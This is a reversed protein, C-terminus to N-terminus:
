RSIYLKYVYPNPQYLVPESAETAMTGLGTTPSHAFEAPVATKTTMVTPQLIVTASEGDAPLVKLIRVAVVGECQLTTWGPVTMPAASNYLLCLRQQGIQSELALQVPTTVNGLATMEFPSQAPLRNNLLRLDDQTLGQRIQRNINDEHLDNNFDLLQVNSLLPDQKLPSSQLVVEPIGDPQEVVVHNIEDYSYNDPGLKEEIMSSWTDLRKGTPDNALIALPLAPIPRAPAAAFHDIENNFAAEVITMADATARGTVGPYFLTVPNGQERSRRTRVEVVTPNDNTLLFTTEGGAGGPVRRGFVIDTDDGDVVLEVRHTGVRNMYAVEAARVKAKYVTEDADFGPRLMDDSLYAGAAALASAEAATQLEVEAAEIWLKNMVLASAAGVVLLAFAIAPMLSGRRRADKLQYPVISKM